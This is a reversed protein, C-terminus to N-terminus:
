PRCPMGPVHHQQKLSSVFAVALLCLFSDDPVQAQSSLFLWALHASSSDCSTIIEPAETFLRSVCLPAQIADLTQHLDRHCKVSSSGRSFPQPHFHPWHSFGKRFIFKPALLLPQFLFFSRSAWYCTPFCPSLSSGVWFIHWQDLDWKGRFFGTSVM